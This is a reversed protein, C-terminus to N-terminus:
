DEANHGVFATFGGLLLVVAAIIGAVLGFTDLDEYYYILLAVVFMGAGLSRIIRIM